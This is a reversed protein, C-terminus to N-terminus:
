EEVNDEELQKNMQKAQIRATVQLLNGLAYVVEGRKFSADDTKDAMAHCVERALERVADDSPEVYRVRKTTPTPKSSMLDDM